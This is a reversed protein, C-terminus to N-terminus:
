LYIVVLIFFLFLLLLELVHLFGWVRYHIVFCKKGGVKNYLNKTLWQRIWPSWHMSCYCFPQKSIQLCSFLDMFKTLPCRDRDTCNVTLFAKCKLHGNVMRARFSNMITFVCVMNMWKKRVVLQKEKLENAQTNTRLQSFSIVGTTKYSAIHCYFSLM